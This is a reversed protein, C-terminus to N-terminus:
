WEISVFGAKTRGLNTLRHMGPKLWFFHGPTVSITTPPASKWPGDSEGLDRVDRLTLSSLAIVLTDNRDSADESQGGPDLSTKSITLSQKATDIRVLVIQLASPELSRLTHVGKGALKLSAGALVKILQTDILLDSDSLAVLVFGHRSSAHFEQPTNVPLMILAAKGPHTISHTPLLPTSAGQAHACLSLLMSFFLLAALRQM